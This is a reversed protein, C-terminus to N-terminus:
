CIIISWNSFKNQIFNSCNSNIIITGNNPFSYGISGYYHGDQTPCSIARIDIYTLNPCYDFMMDINRTKFNPLEISTLNVCNGFMGPYSTLNLTNTNTFNVSVLSDCFYCFKYMSEVSRLDLNSFDMYYLSNCDYFMGTMYKVNRTNLNSFNISALSSCGGFMGNMDEVNETNFEYTFSISIMNTIGSFFGQLSTCNTINILICVIHKGSSSFTYSNNQKKEENEEIGDVIMNIIKNPMYNMLKVTENSSNIYYITKFSYKKNICESDLIYSNNSDLVKTDLSIDSSEISNDIININGTTNAILNDINITDDLNDFTNNDITNSIDKVYNDINNYSTSGNINDIKEITNGNSYDINEVSYDINNDLTNNISIDIINDTINDISNKLNNNINMGHNDDKKARLGFFIGFFLVLFILLLLLLLLLIKYKNSKKKNKNTPEKKNVSNSINHKRKYVYSRRGIDNMFDNNSNQIM